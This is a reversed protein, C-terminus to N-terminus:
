LLNNMQTSITSNQNFGFTKSACQQKKIFSLFYSKKPM